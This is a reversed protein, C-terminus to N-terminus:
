LVWNEVCDVSTMVSSIKINNKLFYDKYIEIEHSKGWREPCVFCIKFKNLLDIQEKTYYHFNISDLWLWNFIPRYNDLSNIPEYYSSRLACHNLKNRLCYFLYPNEVDLFFYSKINHNIVKNLVDNEIGSEKINLVLTGHNYNELFSDLSDGNQYADHNLILDNGYSRVDIEVGYNHPINKLSEITNIRHIIIEM